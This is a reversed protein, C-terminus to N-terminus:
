GIVRDRGRRALRQRNALSRAAEEEDEGMQQYAREALREMVARVGEEFVARAIAGESDSTTNLERKFEPSNRILALDQSDRETLPMSIRRVTKSDTAIM